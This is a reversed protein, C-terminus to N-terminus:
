AEAPGQGGRELQADEVAKRLAPALARAVALPLLFALSQGGPTITEIAVTGGSDISRVSQLGAVSLVTRTPESM